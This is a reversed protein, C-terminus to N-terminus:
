SIPIGTVESLVQNVVDMPMDDHLKRLLIRRYFNNWINFEAIDAAELLLVRVDDANADVQTIKDWLAQFDKFALEGEYGDDKDIEPVKSVPITVTQDMSMALGLFFEDCSTWAEFLLERQLEPKKTMKLRKILQPINM